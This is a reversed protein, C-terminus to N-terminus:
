QIISLSFHWTESLFTNYLGLTRICFSFTDVMKKKFSFSDCKFILLKSVLVYKINSFM